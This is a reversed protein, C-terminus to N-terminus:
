NLDIQYIRTMRPEGKINNEIRNILVGGNKEIVRISAYNKDFCTIIPSTVGLYYAERLLLMLQVTGLGKGWAAPRISYGINGGMRRLNDNLIHRVDGSGLYHKGDVLWFASAPVFGKPVKGCRFDENHKFFARIDRKTSLVPYAFDEVRHALYEHIADRYSDFYEMCPVVLHLNDFDIDLDRMIHDTRGYLINSATKIDM